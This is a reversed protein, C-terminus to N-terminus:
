CYRCILCKIHMDAVGDVADDLDRRILPRQDVARLVLAQAVHLLEAEGVESKGARGMRTIRMAEARHRDGRPHEIREGRLKFQVEVVLLAKALVSRSATSKWSRPWGGSECAVSRIM